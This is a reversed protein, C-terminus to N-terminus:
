EQESVAEYLTEWVLDFMDPMDITQKMNERHWQAAKLDGRDVAEVLANGERDRWEDVADEWLKEFGWAWQRAVVDQAVGTVMSPVDAWVRRLECAEGLTLATGGFDYVLWGGQRGGRVFKDSSLHEFGGHGDIYESKFWDMENDITDNWAVYEPDVEYEELDVDFLKELLRWIDYTEHLKVNITPGRSRDMHRSYYGLESEWVDNDLYAGMLWEYSNIAKEVAHLDRSTLLSLEEEDMELVEHLYGIGPLHWLRNEKDWTPKIDWSELIQINTPEPEPPTFDFETM